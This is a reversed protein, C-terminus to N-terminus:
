VEQVRHLGQIKIRLSQYIPEDQNKRQAKPIAKRRCFQM